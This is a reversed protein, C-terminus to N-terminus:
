YKNPSPTLYTTQSGGKRRLMVAGLGLLIISTPEPIIDIPVSVTSFNPPYALSGYISYSDWADPNLQYGDNHTMDWSTEFNIHEGSKLTFETFWLYFGKGYSWTWIEEEEGMFQAMVGFDYQYTSAFEFTVDEVGLNTVRYLMQVDEGLDYVAKNTQMYYEINDQIISSSKILTAGVKSALGCALSAGVLLTALTKKFKM